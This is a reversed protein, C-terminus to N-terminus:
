KISPTFWEAKQTIIKQTLDDINDKDTGFSKYTIQLVNSEYDPDLLVFPLKGKSSHERIRIVNYGIDVLTETTEKDESLKKQLSKGEPGNGGHTWEGDYEIVIRLDDNLMDIQARKYKRSTRILDIRDSKFAFKSFKEFAERFGRETMGSSCKFCGPGQARSCIQAEWEHNFKCKWWVKKHSGTTVDQPTLEGNRTPHWQSSLEPTITGLDNFGILVRRGSCVVCGQGSSRNVIPAEWEHSLYCEWWVIKKSGTTVDQPTLDGNLIPHWQSALEPNITGLDNFGVLVRNGSCVPCGQGRSRNTIQAEWEHSFQCKWWAKKKSGTTVGQPTLDGNLTPHWQAALEPNTTALDNFGVLVRQGICTPCSNSRMRGAIVAKWEHLLPCIWSVKRNSNATVNHPTLDGNLTPHWQAALEPNVTSLDNFGALVRRGTCVPCGTGRARHSIAADWEHLLSCLWWVKQGSNATIHQPTLAGNLTPHWQAALDPNVTGLDTYGVIPVRGSCKPCGTGASRSYIPAEWEHFLPCMWWAKYAASITVDRPTLRGNKTPHWQAALEPNMTFLDNVGVILRAVNVAMGMGVVYDSTDMRGSRSIKPYILIIECQVFVQSGLVSNTGCYVFLASWLLIQDASEIFSM